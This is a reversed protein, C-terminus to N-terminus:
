RGAEARVVDGAQGAFRWETYLFFAAYVGVFAAGVLMAARRWRPWFHHVAMCAAIVALLALGILPVIDDPAIRM